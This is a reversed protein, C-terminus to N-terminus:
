TLTESHIWVRYNGSHEKLLPHRSMSFVELKFIGYICM